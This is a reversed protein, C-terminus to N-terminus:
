QQAGYRDEGHNASSGPTFCGIYIKDVTLSIENCKHEYVRFFALVELRLM